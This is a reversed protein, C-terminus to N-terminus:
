LLEKFMEAYIASQILVEDGLRFPKEEQPSAKAANHLRLAKAAPSEGFSKAFNYMEAESIADHVPKFKNTSLTGVLDAFAVNVAAADAQAESRAALGDSVMQNIWQSRSLKEGRKVAALLDRHYQENLIAWLGFNVIIPPTPNPKKPM